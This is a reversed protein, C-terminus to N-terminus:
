SRLAAIDRAVDALSERLLLALEDIQPEGVMLPPAVLVLDGNTGDAHGTNPWVILGRALAADVL